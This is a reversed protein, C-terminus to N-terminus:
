KTILVNFSINTLIIKFQVLLANLISPINLAFLAELIFEVNQM